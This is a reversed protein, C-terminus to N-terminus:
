GDYRRRLLTEASHEHNAAERLLQAVATWQRELMGEMELLERTLVAFRREQAATRVLMDQLYLWEDLEDMAASSSREFRRMVGDAIQRLREALEQHARALEQRHCAIARMVEPAVLRATHLLAIDVEAEDLPRQPLGPDGDLDRRNAYDDANM